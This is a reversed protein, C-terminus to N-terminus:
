KLSFRQDLVEELLVPKFKNLDVAVNIYRLDDEHYNHHHGHINWHNKHLDSRNIPCHSMTINNFSISQKYVEDFGVSKWWGVSRYLDHNGMVLVKYGNLKTVIHKMQERNGFGVDGLHFVVDYKGVTRNWNKIMKNNMKTVGSFPRNCYEIINKHYFHHDSTVFM